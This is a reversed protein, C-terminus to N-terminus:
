MRKLRLNTGLSWILTLFVKAWSWVNKSKVDPHEIISNLESVLQSTNQAASLDIIFGNKVYSKEMLM